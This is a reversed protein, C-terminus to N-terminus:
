PLRLTVIEYPAIQREGEHRTIGGGDGTVGRGRLDVEWFQGSPVRVTGGDGTPDFVRVELGGETRRMSSLEVSDLELNLLKIAGATTANASHGGAVECPLSLADVLAYPDLAGPAGDVQVAYRTTIPVQMQAGELRHPPGAPQPRTSMEVRSLMGTARLLTIAIERAKGDHIDVLEYELLGEHAVTVGGASVFRRSPFTSMAPELGGEAYLGRPVIAFACEAFSTDTPTALPMHARLRHDRVTNVFSTEVVVYATGASLSLRTTIPVLVEGLRAHSTDDIREPIRYTAVIELVARLPGQELLQVQASEPRGVVIDHDPPSWNYTDGHDGVDVLRGFGKAENISFTGTENNVVVTVTGNSMRNAAATVPTASFAKPAWPMATFAPVDVHALVRRSPKQTVTLRVPQNMHREAVDRLQDRLDAMLLNVRLDDEATM